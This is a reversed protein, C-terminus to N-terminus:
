DDRQGGIPAALYLLCYAGLDRITDDYSEDVEAARAYLVRLREIKDSMRVLIADRPSSDPVLVPAKWAASGYDQNKQLLLTLWKLGHNAIRKQDEGRHGNMADLVISDIGDVYFTCDKIDFKAESQGDTM